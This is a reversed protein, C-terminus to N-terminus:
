VAQRAHARRATTRGAGREITCVAISGGRKKLITEVRLRQESEPETERVPVQSPKPVTDPGM